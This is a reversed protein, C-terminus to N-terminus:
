IFHCVTREYFINQKSPTMVVIIIVENNNIIIEQEYENFYIKLIGGTNEGSPFFTILPLLSVDEDLELSSGDFSNFTKRNETLDKWHSEYGNIPLNLSINNDRIYFGGDENNNAYWGIINGTVISEETLFNFTKVFSKQQNEVSSISNLNVIMLSTAISIIVIVVLLEILTFGKSSSKSCGIELIPIRAQVEKWEM